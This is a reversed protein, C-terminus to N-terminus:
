ESDRPSRTWRLVRVPSDTDGLVGWIEIFTDDVIKYVYRGQRGTKQGKHPGATIAVADFDFIRIPGARRVRINATHAKEIGGQKGYYTVTEHSGKVEKTVKRTGVLGARETREWLGQVQALDRRTDAVSDKGYSLGPSRSSHPVVSTTPMGRARSKSEPKARRRNEGQGASSRGANKGNESVNNDTVEIEIQNGSFLNFHVDSFLQARNESLIEAENGSLLEARNGSFLQLAIRSLLDVALDSVGGQFNTGDVDAHASPTHEENHEADTAALAQQAIMPHAVAVLLGVLCFYKKQGYSM